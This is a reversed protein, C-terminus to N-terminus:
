LGFCWAVPFVETHTCLPTFTVNSDCGHVKIQLTLVCLVAPITCPQQVSKVHSGCSPSPLCQQSLQHSYIKRTCEWCKLVHPRQLAQAIHGWQLAQLIERRLDRHVSTCFLITKSTNVNFGILCWKVISDLFKRMSFVFTLKEM